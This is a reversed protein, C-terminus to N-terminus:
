KVLHQALVMCSIWAWLTNFAVLTPLLKKNSAWILTVSTALTLFYLWWIQIGFILGPVIILAKATWSAFEVINYDTWYEKTFWMKYCDLINRWNSHIYSVGILVAWVVTAVLIQEITM